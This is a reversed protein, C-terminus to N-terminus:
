AGPDVLAQWNTWGGLTAILDDLFLHPKHRIDNNGLMVACVDVPGTRKGVGQIEEQLMQCYFPWAQRLLLLPKRTLM